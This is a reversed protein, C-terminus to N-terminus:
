KGHTAEKKQLEPLIDVSASGEQLASLKKLIEEKSFATAAKIANATKESIAAPSGAPSAAPNTTQQEPPGEQNERLRELQKRRLEGKSNLFSAINDYGELIVDGEATRAIWTPVKKINYQDVIARNMEITGGRIIVNAWDYSADRVFFQPIQMTYIAEPQIDFKKLIDSMSKILSFTEQVDSANLLLALSEIPITQKQEEETAPLLPEVDSDSGKLAQESDLTKFGDDDAPDSTHEKGSHKVSKDEIAKSLTPLSSQPLQNHISREEQMAGDIYGKEFFSDPRNPPAGYLDFSAIMLLLFFIKQFFTRM